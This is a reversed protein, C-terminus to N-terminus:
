PILYILILYISNSLNPYSLYLNSLSLVPLPPVKPSLYVPILYIPILYIPILYIPILYPYSPYFPVKPRQLATQVARSTALRTLGANVSRLDAVRRQFADDEAWVILSPSLSPLPTSPRPPETPLPASLPPPM